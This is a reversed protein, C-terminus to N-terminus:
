CHDIAFLDSGLCIMSAQGFLVERDRGRVGLNSLFYKWSAAMVAHILASIPRCCVVAM